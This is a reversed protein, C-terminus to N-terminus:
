TEIVLCVECKRCAALAQKYLHIRHILSSAYCMRDMSAM